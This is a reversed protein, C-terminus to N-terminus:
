RPARVPLPQWAPLMVTEGMRFPAPNGKSRVRIQRMRREFAAQKAKAGKHENQAMMDAAAFLVIALGDLDSRHAGSTLPNLPRLGVFQMTGASAPLPWVELTVGDVGTARIDYRQLPDCREDNDPNYASYQEFGIGRELGLPKDGWWVVAQEIRDIDLTAPVDYYRQGASIAKTPTVRLFPWDYDDRLTEQARRLLVHIGDEEDVGASVLLSRGTEARLMRTMETLTTGRAM